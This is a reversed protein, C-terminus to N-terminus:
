IINLFILPRSEGQGQRPPTKAASVPVTVAPVQTNDANSEAAAYPDNAPLNLIPLLPNPILTVGGSPIKYRDDPPGPTLSPRMTPLTHTQKSLPNPTVAHDNVPSSFSGVSPISSLASVCPTAAADVGSAVKRNQSDPYYQM